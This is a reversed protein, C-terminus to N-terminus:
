NLAQLYAEAIKDFRRCFRLVAHFPFLRGDAQRGSQFALELPLRLSPSSRQMAQNYENQPSRQM